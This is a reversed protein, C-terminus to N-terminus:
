AFYSSSPLLFRAVTSLRAVTGTSWCQNYSGVREDDPHCLFIGIIVMIGHDLNTSRRTGCFVTFIKEFNVAIISNVVCACWGSSGVVEFSKIM